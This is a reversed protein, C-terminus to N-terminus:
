CQRIPKLSSAIVAEVCQQYPFADLEFNFSDDSEASEIHSSQLNNHGTLCPVKKHYELGPLGM